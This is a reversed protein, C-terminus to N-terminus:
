PRLILIGAESKAFEAMRLASRQLVAAAQRTRYNMGELRILKPPQGFRNTLILFDSDATLIAFNERKAYQWIVIDEADARLDTMQAHITGPFLSGLLPVLKPSLNFDLLLKM